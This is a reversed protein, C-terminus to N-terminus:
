WSTWRCAALPGPSESFAPPSCAQSLPQAPSCPSPGQRSSNGPEWWGREGERWQLWVPKENSRLHVLIM